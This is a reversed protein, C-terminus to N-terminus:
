IFDKYRSYCILGYIKSVVSNVNLDATLVNWFGGKDGHVNVEYM